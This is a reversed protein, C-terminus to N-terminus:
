ASYNHAAREVVVLYQLTTMEESRGAEPYEGTERAFAGRHAAQRPGSGLRGGAHSYNGCYGATGTGHVSSGDSATRDHRARALEGDVQAQRASGHQGRQEQGLARQAGDPEPGVAVLRADAEGGGVVDPDARVRDHEVAVRAIGGAREVDVEGVLGRAPVVLRDAHAAELARLLERVRELEAVVREAEAPGLHGRPHRAHVPHRDDPSEKV